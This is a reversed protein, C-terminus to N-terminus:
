ATIVIKVIEAQKIGVASEEYCLVGRKLRKKEEYEVQEEHEVVYEGVEFDPILYVETTLMQPTNVIRGGSFEINRVGKKFLEEAVADSENTFSKVDANRSGRMLIWKLNFGKDELIGVGEVLAAKTLSGGACAVQHTATQISARFLDVTRKDRQQKVRFAARDMIQFTDILGKRISRENITQESFIRHPTLSVESEVIEAEVPEGKVNSIFAVDGDFVVMKMSSDKADLDRRRLLLSTIEQAAVAESFYSSLVEAQTELDGSEHAEKLYGALTQLAEQPKCSDINVNEV